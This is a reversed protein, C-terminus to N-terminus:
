LSRLGRTEYVSTKQENRIACGIAMILAVMGDIRQMAKAKNPKVNGAPDLQVVLNDANWRLVPQANHILLHDLTLALLRKTPESLSQFGQRVEVMPLGENLLEIALQTANWPDYGLQLIKWRKAETKVTERIFAYDVANGPTVLLDGQKVWQRYNQKDKRAHEDMTDEPIWFWCKVYWYPDAEFPPWVLVFATLDTTASLDLGGYCPRNKLKSEDLIGASKDWDAMPLYRVAQKVWQNLRLQRFRNEIAPSRQAEQFEERVKEIDIIKGLSPNAKYWNKESRWDADMALGYYVALFAPDIRPDRLVKEAHQHLEWAISEPGPNDGATTIAFTLPQKRAAGSGFTLIDWLDRNPQAHIEDFILGHRNVGHKTYAEASLVQYFSKTPLYTLRKQSLNLHCRKKLAPWQDVMDVAVDFVLSANYRDAAAGYVQAGWEDDACTLFLGIGAAMESKGNKKPIEVFATRYQRYGNPNVTGFLPKIIDQDQWDMLQFPVGHWEGIGHKLHTFFKIVREYKTQDFM